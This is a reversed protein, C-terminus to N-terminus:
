QCPFLVPEKALPNSCQENTGLIYSPHQMVRTMVITGGVGSEGLGWLSVNQFVQLGHLQELFQPLGLFSSTIGAENKLYVVLSGTPLPSRHSHSLLALM